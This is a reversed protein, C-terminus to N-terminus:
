KRSFLFRFVEEVRKCGVIRIGFRSTDLGRLNNEPIVITDFGIRQAEAIRGEIRSVPRIEGALGVEGTLCCKSSIPIDVNSSLVACLIALDVAPDVIKLGGTINLFVDKQILKFGAKKELVALLMNMRRLDFGTASRQPNNYIASSVLAQTEILLPRAGEVAVGIAIGSLGERADSILHESPNSVIRLGGSVMEYIGIEATSGFRNKSCRLLRYMYHKDGEFQLVTDVIHELVKPGALTGEKNIHGVVITPIMTTKTFQLLLNACEKIQSISGPSSDSQACTMTQISDIILLDPHLKVAEEIVSPLFTECYISCSELDIIGIREARLKLQRASEEGSVYLSRLSSQHLATQLILTSKGIGPEGGLLIFSGKVLGGGLVRNFESDGLDIRADETTGIRGIPLVKNAAGLEQFASRAQSAKTPAQVVVEEITNWEKCRSCQGMWQSYRSGCSTCEYYSKNAAM